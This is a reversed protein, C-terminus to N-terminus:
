GAAGVKGAAFQAAQTASGDTGYTLHALINAGNGCVPDGLNCFEDARPAYLPSASAITQGTLRLPNGFTVVAAVRPALSVPIATGMGLATSIGIAIDTVSAGQSYGGIVFITGPCQAALATIHQSMDTAGPGASTQAADAAYNVAYDTVTKGPLDASVASAFPTGVMGLGPLEGTGRAFVVNVDPCASAAPSDLAMQRISASATRQQPTLALGLAAAILIALAPAAALRGLPRPARRLPSFSM